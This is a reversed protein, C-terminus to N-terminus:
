RKEVRFCGNPEGGESFLGCAERDASLLEGGDREGSLLGGEYGGMLSFVEGMGVVRFFGNMGEQKHSGVVLGWLQFHGKRSEVRRFDGEQKEKIRM